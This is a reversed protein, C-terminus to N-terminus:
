PARRELMDLRTNVQSQWCLDCLEPPDASPNDFVLIKTECTKCTFLTSPLSASEPYGLPDAHDAMAPVFATAPDCAKKLTRRILLGAGVMLVFSVLRTIATWLNGDKFAGVILMVLEITTTVVLVTAIPIIMKIISPAM